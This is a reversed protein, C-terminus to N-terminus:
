KTDLAANWAAWDADQPNNAEAASAFPEPKSPTGDASVKMQMMAGVMEEWQHKDVQKPGSIQHRGTTSHEKQTLGAGNMAVAGAYVRVLVSKDKRADVRFTTGRVGAVANDTEVEFKSDGGVLGSVKSWVRGFLLKASFSKEGNSGFYAKKLLLSSSPGLRVVSGEKMKLEIKTGAGTEVTDNEFVSSGVALAKKDSSGSATDTASGELFSVQASNRDQAQARPALLLLAPGAGIAILRSIRM